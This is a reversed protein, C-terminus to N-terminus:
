PASATAVIEELALPPLSPLPPQDLALTHTARITHLTSEFSALRRAEVLGWESASLLRGGMAELRMAELAFELDPHPDVLQIWEQQEPEIRWRGNEGPALGDFFVLDFEELLWPRHDGPKLLVMRFHVLSVMHNTGNEIKFEIVPWELYDRHRKYVKAQSFRFAGLDRQAAASAERLGELESIGSRVETLRRRRAEAVIGDATRGDLPLLVDIEVDGERNEEGARGLWPMGALYFLAEDFSSSESETMPGRMRRASDDAAVANSADLTLPGCGSAAILLTAAVLGCRFSRFWM